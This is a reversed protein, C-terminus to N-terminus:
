SNPKSCKDENLLNNLIFVLREGNSNLLEKLQFFRICLPRTSMLKITQYLKNCTGNAHLQKDLNLWHQGALRYIRRATRSRSPQCGASRRTKKYLAICLPPLIGETDVTWSPWCFQDAEVLLPNKKPPFEFTVHLDCSLGTWRGPV